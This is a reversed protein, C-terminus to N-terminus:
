EAGFVDFQRKMQELKDFQAKKPELSYHEFIDRFAEYLREDTWVVTLGPVDQAFTNNSDVLCSFHKRFEDPTQPIWMM